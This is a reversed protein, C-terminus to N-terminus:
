PKSGMLAKRKEKERRWRETASKSMKANKPTKPKDRKREHNRAAKAEASCPISCYRQRGHRIFYRSECTSNECLKLSHLLGKLELSCGLKQAGRWPESANDEASDRLYRHIDVYLQQCKESAKMLDGSDAFEWIVRLQHRFIVVHYGYESDPQEIPIKGRPGRWRRRIEKYTQLQKGLTASDHAPFYLRYNKRFDDKRWQQSSKEDGNVGALLFERYSDPVKYKSMVAEVTLGGLPWELSRRVREM